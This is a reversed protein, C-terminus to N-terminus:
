QLATHWKLHDLRHFRRHLRLKLRLPQRLRRILHLLACQDNVVLRIDLSEDQLLEAVFYSASRDAEQERAVANFGQRRQLRIALDIEYDGIDIHRPHITQRQQLLQLLVLLLDRGNDHRGIAIHGIDAGGHVAACKIEHGFRDIELIQLGSNGFGDPM